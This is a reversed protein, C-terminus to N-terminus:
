RPHSHIDEVKEAPDAAEAEPKFSGSHSGDREAFPLRETAFDEGLVPGIDGAVVVHSTKGSFAEGCISNRGNIDNTAPERTLVDAEGSFL